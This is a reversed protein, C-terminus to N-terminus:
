KGKLIDAFFNNGKDDVLIIAPFDEVEIKRVAEMGLEEMDVIEVKKINKEALLAAPGGVSGLYFGGHEQCSDTVEQARNGKALMVMSGGKSQFETVYPDMRQATTPGFSGSPKGEPTKAPGAYYVPHNKFYEPMPEGADLKEKIKAHAIDRAVILTGNLRLRTLVPYTSLEKLIEEMPRNLDIVPATDAQKGINEPAYMAPDYELQELFVGDKTIKAKINRDASCSVGLGVPCSAAHRPLRIVRVDHCFYKGGFQAGIKSDQAMKLVKEEWELDRYARGTEDGSTPLDDLAGISAMKVYKMTAEASTGGIVVAFHYPPCAATGVTFLEAKLFETLTEENLLSKTKQYLYSKNASGGGKAIFTLNYEAGKGAYLDIQAPLNNGTNKETFMSLPAIQSYRLNREQYAKFVGKSLAEKEDFDTWVYGGKTGTVISTGTDQCTPLEGHAAIISNELFSRAVFIDNESAEPDDLIAAVQKMHGPRLYFSVDCFAEYSLQELAEPEVILVEKGNFTETRVGDKTILRYPTNDGSHQFTPTYTYNSM